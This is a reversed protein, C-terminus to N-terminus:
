LGCNNFIEMAPQNKYRAIKQGKFDDAGFDGFKQQYGIDASTNM